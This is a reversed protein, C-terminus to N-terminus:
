QEGGGQQGHGRATYLGKGSECSWWAMIVAFLFIVELMRRAVLVCISAVGFSLSFYTVFLAVARVEKAREQRGLIRPIKQRRTRGGRTPRQGSATGCVRRGRNSRGDVPSPSRAKSGGNEVRRWCSPSPPFAPGMWASGPHRHFLTCHPNLTLKDFCLAAHATLLM